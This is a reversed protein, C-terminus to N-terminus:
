SRPALGIAVYGTHRIVLHPITKGKHTKYPSVLDVVHVLEGRELRNCIGPNFEQRPKPGSNALTRLADLAHKTLPHTQTGNQPPRTM